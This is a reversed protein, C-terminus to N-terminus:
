HNSICETFLTHSFGNYIVQAISDILTTSWDQTFHCTCRNAALFAPDRMDIPYFVLTDLTLEHAYGTGGHARAIATANM